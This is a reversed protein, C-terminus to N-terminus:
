AVRVYVGPWQEVWNPPVVFARRRRSQAVARELDELPQDLVAALWALWFGTPLREGREWRSVEHRTVTAVGASACLRGALRLQSIGLEGRVRAILEGVTERRAWREPM